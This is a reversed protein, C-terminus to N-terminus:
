PISPVLIEKFTGVKSSVSAIVNWDKCDSTVYTCYTCSAMQVLHQTVIYTYICVDLCGPDTQRSGFAFLYKGKEDFVTDNDNGHNCIYIQGDASVHLCM